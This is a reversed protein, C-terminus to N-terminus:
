VGRGYTVDAVLSGPPVYLEMIDPFVEDNTGQSASLILENTAIGSAVRATKKPRIMAANTSM